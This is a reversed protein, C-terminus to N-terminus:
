NLWKIRSSLQNAQIMNRLSFIEGKAKGASKTFAAHSEGVFLDEFVINGNRVIM